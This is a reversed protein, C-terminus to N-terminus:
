TTEKRGKRSRRWLECYLEGTSNAQRRLDFRQAWEFGTGALRQALEPESLLRAIAAGLAAADGPPVLLGTQEHRVVEVTGDVATAVVPRAAALAEVAALPLGEFWSPLVVVDAAVLWAAMDRQFGAFHVAESLGAEAAHAMLAERQSGAGAFVAKLRPFIQRLGPLARLLVAHGKQVELRGSVLLLPDGPTMALGARYSAARRAGAASPAFAELAIGNPIIHLKSEPLRKIQRLYVANAASVAIYADVGRAILRDVGYHAKLGQRWHERLHPTEVVVAVGAMRALPTGFLSSYFLHSHVIDMRERGLWSAWRVGTPWDRLRRLHIPYIAAGAPLDGEMAEALEPPCVLWQRFRAADLARLLGLIHEEAGGRVFSNTFHAVRLPRAPAALIGSPGDGGRAAPARM